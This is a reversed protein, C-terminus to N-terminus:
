YYKKRFRARKRTCNVFIDTFSFCCLKLGCRALLVLDEFHLTLLLIDLVHLYVDDDDVM